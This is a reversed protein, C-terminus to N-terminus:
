PFRGPVGAAHQQESVIQVPKRQAKRVLIRDLRRPSQGSEFDGAVQLAALLVNAASRQKACGTTTPEHTLAARVSFGV